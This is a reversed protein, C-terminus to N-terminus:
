APEPIPDAETLRQKDPAVGIPPFLDPRPPDVNERTLVREVSVGQGLSSAPRGEIWLRVGTVGPVATATWVVQALRAILSGRDTGEVFRRTLDVTAVGNAVTANRLRTGAPVQTRVDTAKEATTPGQLLAAVAATVTRRTLARPVSKLSEGQLLFVQGGGSSAAM